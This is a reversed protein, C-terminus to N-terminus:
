GHGVPAGERATITDGTMLMQMARGPPLVRPFCCQRAAAPGMFGVMAEPQGLVADDSAIIFDTSIAM